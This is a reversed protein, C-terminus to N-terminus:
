FKIKPSSFPFCIDQPTEEASRCRLNPSTLHQGPTVEEEQLAQGRAHVHHGGEVESGEETEDLYLTEEQSRYRYEEEIGKHKIDDEM